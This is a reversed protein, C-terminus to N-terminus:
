LITAVPFLIAAVELPWTWGTTWLLIGFVCAALFLILHRMELRIPRMAVERDGEM